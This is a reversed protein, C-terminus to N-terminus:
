SVTRRVSEGLECNGAHAKRELTVWCGRSARTSFGYPQLLEASPQTVRTTADLMHQDVYDLVRRMLESFLGRGRAEPRLYGERIRIIDSRHEISIFGLVREDEARRVVFWRYMPGNNLPYGGCERRVAPSAFFYGMNSFFLNENDVSRLQFFEYTGKGDMM